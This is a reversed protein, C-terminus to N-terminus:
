KEYWNDFSTIKKSYTMIITDLTNVDPTLQSAGFPSILVVEGRFWGTGVKYHAPKKNFTVYPVM